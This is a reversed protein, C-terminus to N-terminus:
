AEPGDDDPLPVQEWTVIRGDRVTFRAAALTGRAADCRSRARHGLEFVATAVEDGAPALDVVRGSCPLSANFLVADSETRLEYVAGGQIV